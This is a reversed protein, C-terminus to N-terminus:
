KDPLHCNSCKLLERKLHTYRITIVWARTLGDPRYDRVIFPAGALLDIKTKSFSYSLSGALNLTLGESGKLSIDTGDQLSIKDEGLHYILLPGAALRWKRWKWNAEARLLLDGKRHLHRSAFYDADNSVVPYIASPLYGNNNYQLLPQQYGVAFSLHSGYLASVGAILDTTGLSAQYPMPLPQGKDGANADGLGIRGGFTGLLQWRTASHYLPRTYTVTLDGIGTHAGLMGKAINIPLKADLTGQKGIGVSGELQPIIITTAKEGAGATLSLGWTQKRQTSDSLAGGGKMAGATCFGADSCGQAHVFQQSSVLLVLLFTSIRVISM